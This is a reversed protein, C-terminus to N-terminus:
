YEVTLNGKDTMLKLIRLGTFTEKVGSTDDDENNDNNGKIKKKIKTTNKKADYHAEIKLTGVTTKQELEKLNGSKDVSWEYKLETESLKIIPANNYQISKLVVKIEKGENKLKSFILKTTSEKLM